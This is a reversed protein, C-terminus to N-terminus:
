QNYMLDSLAQGIFWWNGDSIDLPRFIYDKYEKHGLRFLFAAKVLKSLIDRDSYYNALIDIFKNCIDLQSETLLEENM